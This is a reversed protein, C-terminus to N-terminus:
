WQDEHTSRSADESPSSPERRRSLNMANNHAHLEASVAETM